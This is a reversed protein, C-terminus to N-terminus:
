KVPYGAEKLKERMPKRRILISMAQATDRQYQRFVDDLDEAYYYGNGVNCIMHGQSRLEEIGERIKRDSIATRNFLSTRSIANEKGKPINASIVDLTEKKM